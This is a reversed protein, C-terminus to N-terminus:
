PHAELATIALTGPGADVVSEDPVRQWGPDDSLPESAITIADDTSLTFLSNCSATAALHTGDSLLLNFRGTTRAKIRAVVATLADVPSAGADLEDLVMAFLVESDADGDFEDHWHDGLGARLEDGLGDYFGDVRGNLSFLWQDSEFPANGTVEITAGPSAARAAAVVGGTVIDTSAAAFDDDEWIPDLSVYRDPVTAPERYWGVGFGDRNDEPPHQHKPGRAMHALGHPAGYLLDHVPIPPGVYALHRCV